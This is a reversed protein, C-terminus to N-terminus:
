AKDNGRAMWAEWCADYPPEYEEEEEPGCGGAAAEDLWAEFAYEMAIRSVIHDIGVEIITDINM